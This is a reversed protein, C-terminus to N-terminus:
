GTNEFDKLNDPRQYRMLRLRYFFLSIISNILCFGFAAVVVTKNEGILSLLSTMTIYSCNIILFYDKMDQKISHKIEPPM